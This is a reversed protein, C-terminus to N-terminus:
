LAKMSAFLVKFPLVEVKFIFYVSFVVKTTSVPFYKKFINAGFKQSKFIDTGLKLFM